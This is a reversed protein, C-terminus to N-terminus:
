KACLKEVEAPVEPALAAVSRKIAPMAKDRFAKLDPTVFEMGNKKLEKVYFEDMETESKEGAALDSSCVDSSWDGDLM